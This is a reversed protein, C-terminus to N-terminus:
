STETEDGLARMAEVGSYDITPLEFGLVFAIERALASVAKVVATIYPVIRMLLPIIMNGLARQLQVVQQNLIRFANAPTMITRAMDGLYGQIRSTEMIQVFRLQAKEMQTMTEVNKEIGHNLAVMKLTTESIDFGWERMPRPQGAIASELKRM